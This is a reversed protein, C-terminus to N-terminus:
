HQESAQNEEPRRAEPPANQHQQQAQPPRDDQRGGEPRKGEPRRHNQQKQDQRKQDRRRDDQKKEQRGGNKQSREAWGKGTSRHATEEVRTERLVVVKVEGPYSLEREIQRAIDWCMKASKADDVKDSQVIVRVERGAQIAYSREVGGFSNAVAELKELREIYKELTERRAGPRAGSVADMAQVLVPYLSLPPEEEHHAAVSNVVLESEGCRRALDAGIKAHSGEAELDLSKGIDHLLGCRKALNQDMGLEAAISGMLRATEVCHELVNQGYSTRYKLRGMQNVLKQHLGHVGIDLVAQKGAEEIDSEVEKTTATIIEEIRTPHIRGDTVLKGMARRAIERKVSEFCSVVVVGPTDDVIVDAGTLKEFARINRGERGIIRGKMEDSPLEVSAVTTEATHETACRQLTQILLHKAKRDVEEKLRETAKQIKQAVEYDVEDQIKDLLM